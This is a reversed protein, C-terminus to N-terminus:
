LENMSKVYYDALRRKETDMDSSFADYVACVRMGASKGALIGQPVDEFVLCHKPAVGLDGAVLLYIDPAPKGREVECATRVSKFFKQVGLRKLVADTLERSNSTAIGAPIGHESLYNLFDLAGEKLTVENMYKDMAMENWDQKIKDLADPINYKDKIYCATESFSMGEIENQLTEEYKRGFRGLYEIDIDRWMWMSDILTGDMDFIVGRTDKLLEKKM